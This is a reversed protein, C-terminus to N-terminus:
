KKDPKTEQFAHSAIKRGEDLLSALHESSRFSEGYIKYIDETGSPRLAIWGNKTRIKAGGIPAHNGPAMKLFRQIKDGGIVTLEVENSELDNLAAKQISTAPAQVREYFTEGLQHAIDEYLLAPDKGLKASLEASLLAPVIGDKDTTWVKGNKRSFIAGASEEGAFGLEGKFLGDVFWKFGVPVEFIARELKAAVRDIMQSSVLTKGISIKTSWLPRNQILYFVASALYHNPPMLGKKTVIGHRDHDTDCAFSIDFSGRKKILSQMAYISSPDMRIKGDWDRPMFRFCPDVTTNVVSLNIKYLEAIPQWYHVGAGGM